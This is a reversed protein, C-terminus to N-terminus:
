EEYMSRIDALAKNYAVPKDCCGTLNLCNIEKELGKTSGVVIRKIASLAQDIRAKMRKDTDKSDLAMLYEIERFKALVKKIEIDPTM